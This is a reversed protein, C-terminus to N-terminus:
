VREYQILTIQRVKFEKIFKIQMLQESMMSQSPIIISNNCRQPGSHKTVQVSPYLTFNTPASTSDSVSFTVHCPLQQKEALLLLNPHPWFLLLHDKM